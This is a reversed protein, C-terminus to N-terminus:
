NTINQAMYAAYMGVTISANDFLMHCADSMLGISDTPGWGCVWRM